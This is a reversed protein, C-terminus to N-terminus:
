WHQLLFLGGHKSIIKGCVVKTPNPEQEFVWVTSQQKTEPEYACIWSEACTVINYFYKELFEFIKKVGISVFKKKSRYDFQEPDM